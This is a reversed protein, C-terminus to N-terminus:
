EDWLWRDRWTAVLFWPLGGFDLVLVLTGLAAVRWDCFGIIGGVVVLLTGILPLGSIHQYDSRSRHRWFHLAPRVMALYLNLGAVLLGAVAFGIGIASERPYVLGVSASVALLAVPFFCIVIGLARRRYNYGPVPKDPPAEM